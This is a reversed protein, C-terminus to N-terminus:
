KKNEKLEQYYVYFNTTVRSMWDAFREGRYSPVLKRLVKFDRYYMRFM